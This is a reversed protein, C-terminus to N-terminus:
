EVPAVIRFVTPETVLPSSQTESLRGVGFITKYSEGPKMQREFSVKEDHVSWFESGYDPHFGIDVTDVEPSLSESLKVRVTEDRQSTFQYVLSPEPFKSPNYQKFLTVGNSTIEIRNNRDSDVM